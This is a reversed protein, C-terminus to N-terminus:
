EEGVEMQCSAATVYYSIVDATFTDDGVIVTDGPHLMLDPKSFRYKLKGANFYKYTEGTLTVVKPTYTEQLYGTLTITKNISGRDIRITELAVRIIETRKRVVGSVIYATDIVMDNSVRDAIEIAYEMGPIAVSLYSDAGSRLRSQFSSIPIEIDPSGTITFFYALVSNETILPFSEASIASIIPSGSLVNDIGALNIASISSIIPNGTLVDDVLIIGFAAPSGVLPIGALINMTLPIFFLLENEIQDTSTHQSIEGDFILRYQEIDDDFTTNNVATQSTYIKANRAGYNTDLGSDHYNNVIIQDFKIDDATFNIIIRWDAAEGLYTRSSNYIAPGDKDLYTAFARYVDYSGGDYRYATATFDVNEVLNLINNHYSFEISRIGIRGAPDGSWNDAFDFVVSKAAYQYLKMYAALDEIDPNGAIVDEPVAVAYTLSASLSEIIPPSSVVDMTATSTEDSDWNFATTDAWVFAATDLYHIAM